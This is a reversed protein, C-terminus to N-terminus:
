NSQVSKETHAIICQRILKTRAEFDSGGLVRVEDDSARIGEYVVSQKTGFDHATGHYRNWRGVRDHGQFLINAIGDKFYAGTSDKNSYSFRCLEGEGDILRSHFFGKPMGDEDFNEGDYRLMEGDHFIIVHTFLPENTTPMRCFEIWEGSAKYSFLRASKGQTSTIKAVVVGAFALGILVHLCVIIRSAGVPRLDGYGLTTETVVSFYLAAIVDFENEGDPGRIGHDPLNKTLVWYVLAFSVTLGIGVLALSTGNARDVLRLWRSAKSAM